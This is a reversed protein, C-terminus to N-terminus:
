VGFGRVRVLEKVPSRTMRLVGLATKRITQSKSEIPNAGGRILQLKSGSFECTKKLLPPIGTAEDVCLDVLRKRYGPRFSEFRRVVTLVSKISDGQCDGIM